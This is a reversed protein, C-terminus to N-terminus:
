APLYSNFWLTILLKFRFDSVYLRSPLLSSMSFIRGVAYSIRCSSVSSPRSTLGHWNIVRISRFGLIFISRIRIAIFIAGFLTWLALRALM